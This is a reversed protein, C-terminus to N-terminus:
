DLRGLSKLKQMDRSVTDRSVCLYRAIEKLNPADQKMGQFWQIYHIIEDQREQPNFVKTRVNLLDLM